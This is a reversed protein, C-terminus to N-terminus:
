LGYKIIELLVKVDGEADHLEVLGRCPLGAVRRDQPDPRTQRAHCLERFWESHRTLESRTAHHIIDQNKILLDDNSSSINAHITALSM